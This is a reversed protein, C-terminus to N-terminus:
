GDATAKDRVKGDVWVEIADDTLVVALADKKQQAPKRRNRRRRKCGLPFYWRWRSLKMIL